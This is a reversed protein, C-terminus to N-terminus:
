NLARNYFLALSKLDVSTSTLDNRKLRWTWNNDLSAPTNFRAEEDLGLVDQMPIIAVSATSAYALTILHRHINKHSVVSGIYRRLNKKINKDIDQRYWGVTTNNDHTGTYVIFNNLYNHPIHDSKAMDDSFAFQLVKMGPFNFEDRLQHVSADIDGLDEAVFPMRGLEKKLRDFFSAGPGTRWQGNIATAEGQPIEWYSSFARFHDFRILDYLMVNRRVRKVWWDYNKQRLVDWKFVPMGWQQGNANFYDPPVGAVGTMVGTEDISFIEPNAWVDVSDYSIYFPLDGFILINKRNCYDKLHKWQQFFIFQLWKEKLLEDSYEVSFKLLMEGDRYKYKQPWAYWPKNQNIKKMVAYLAYDDLWYAEERAFKLLSKKLDPRQKFKEYAKSFLVDKIKEAEAFDAQNRAAVRSASLDDVTLLQHETLLEPSILLTNGAMCSTASYPSYGQAGETINLPLIQWYHQKNSELFDAFLYAEAGLDGIGFGSPLSTIHLLVGASRKLNEEQEMNHDSDM